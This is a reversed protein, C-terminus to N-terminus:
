AAHGRQATVFKSVFADGGATIEDLTGQAAIKGERMLVVNDGFYSAEALDHTVILVTKKLRRFIDRLETQLDYRIMPDLAGLPEDMLLVSPDLVLARMLAVRQRQGGSLESPLRDLGDAPFGTLQRLGDVRDPLDISETTPGDTAPLTINQRATLHPFLGGDQIVYGVHRRAQRTMSEGAVVVEGADPKILGLAIRLLTSKGCGSPGILATTTGSDVTLSVDDVAPAVTGTFTKRIGTLRIM